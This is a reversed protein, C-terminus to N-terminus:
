RQVPIAVRGAGEHNSPVLHYPWLELAVVDCRMPCMSLQLLYYTSVVSIDYTSGCRSAYWAYQDIYCAM